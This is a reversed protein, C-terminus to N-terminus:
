EIVRPSITLGLLGATKLHVVLEFRTPHQFWTALCRCAEGGLQSRARDLRASRREVVSTTVRRGGGRAPFARTASQNSRAPHTKRTSHDGRVHKRVFTAVTVKLKVARGGTRAASITSVLARIQKRLDAQTMM